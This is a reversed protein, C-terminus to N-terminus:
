EDCSPQGRLTRRARYGAVTDVRLDSSFMAALLGAGGILRAHLARSQWRQVCSNRVAYLTRFSQSPRTHELVGSEMLGEVRFEGQDINQRIWNTIRITRQVNRGAAGTFSRRYHLLHRNLNDIVAGSRLARALFEYDQAPSIKKYGGLRHFLERRGFFLPHIVPSAYRAYSRVREVGVPKIITRGTLDGAADIIKAQGGILDVSPFNELYSFQQEFRDPLSVDDADMRAIYRGEALALGANLAGSVGEGSTRCLRIRPDEFGGAIEASRDASGDDILILEFDGFTQELVSRVADRLYQEADRFPLLVSIAINKM